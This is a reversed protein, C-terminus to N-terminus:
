GQVKLNSILYALNNNLGLSEEADKLEEQKFVNMVEKTAEHVSNDKMSKMTCETLGIDIHKSEGANTHYLDEEKKSKPASVTKVKPPVSTTVPTKVPEETKSETESVKEEVSEVPAVEEKVEFNYTEQASSHLSKVHEQFDGYPLNPVIAEPVNAENDSKKLRDMIMKHDQDLKEKLECEAKAKEERQELAEKKLCNSAFIRFIESDMASNWNEDQQYASNWDLNYDTKKM